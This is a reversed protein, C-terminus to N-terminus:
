RSGSEPLDTRPSAPVTEMEGVVLDKLMPTQYLRSYYGAPIASKSKLFNRLFCFYLMQPYFAYYGLWSVGALCYGADLSDYVMFSGVSSLIHVLLMFLNYYLFKRKAPLYQKYKTCRLALIIIYVVAFMVSYTGYYLASPGTVVFLTVKYTALMVVQVGELIGAGAASLLIIRQITISSRIFGQFFFILVSLEVFVMTFRLIMWLVDGSTEQSAYVHVLLRAINVASLVWTMVFYWKMALSNKARLRARNRKLKIIMYVLFIVTPAGLVIEYTPWNDGVKHSVINSCLGDDDVSEM